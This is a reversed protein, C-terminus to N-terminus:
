RPAAGVSAPARGHYIREARAGIRTLLEYAITGSAAAAVDVPVHRGVLEVDDGVGAEPIDTVDFVTLDMSIRGLVAANRGAVSGYAHPHAARLVGDAYGAAVIAARTTRTATWAAGYGITEGPRVTRIQLIPATFTAVPRIRPDPLGEPGGGYLCIGCRVMDFVFEPGIFLGDSAALSRKATPFHAATAAFRELQRRNMPHAPRDACALHSMVWEIEVGRLRDPSAALAAAEEESVGLRNLGTDIMLAADGGGAAAYDSVQDLTNLVPTLRHRRLAPGAGRLCGDLVHIEPAEGLARRLAVGEDTRAVFFRNAGMAMLRRGVEVAGLGYGDAKVVPAVDAGAAQRLLVRYNAAVADLDVILRSQPRTASM